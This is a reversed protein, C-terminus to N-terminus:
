DFFGDTLFLFCCVYDQKPLQVLAVSQHLARQRLSVLVSQRLDTVAVGIGSSVRQSCADRPALSQHPICSEKFTELSHLSQQVCLTGPHAEIVHEPVPFSFVGGIPVGTVALLSPVVHTQHAATTQLRHAQLLTGVTVNTVSEIHEPNRWSSLADLTLMFALMFASFIAAFSDARRLPTSRHKRSSQVPEMTLHNKSHRGLM